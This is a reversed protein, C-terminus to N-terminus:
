DEGFALLSKQPHSIESGIVMNDEQEAESDHVGECHIHYPDQMCHMHIVAPYSTRLRVLCWM